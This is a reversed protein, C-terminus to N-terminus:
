EFTKTVTFVVADKYLSRGNSTNAAQFPSSTATNTYWKAAVTYDKPLAYALGVNIDNYSYDSNNAVATHGYHAVVSLNKLSDSLFDLPQALDAQSYQTGVTNYMGFYNGLSQSYKVSVPGYGIGAYLEQTNYNTNSGTAAQPYFYNYSGVDVTVGNYIDKKWGAYIDSEVGSGNLYQQSSVSSNWNGVYFGSENNYDVGGQVAAGNQSQSIGRFRYDSTLGLNGTVEARATTFGVVALIAFLVKKM